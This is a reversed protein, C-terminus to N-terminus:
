RTIATNSDELVDIRGGPFMYRGNDQNELLVKTKDENFIITGSRCGFRSDKDIMTIM